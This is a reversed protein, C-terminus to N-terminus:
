LAWLMSMVSFGIVALTYSISNCFGVDSPPPTSAPTETRPGNCTTPNCGQGCLAPFELSVQLCAEDKEKAESQMLFQIRDYCSFSGNSDTAIADLISPRCTEPCGCDFVPATCVDPNCERGCVSPFLNGIARCAQRETLDFQDMQGLIRERCTPADPEESVPRDLAARCQDNCTCDFEFDVDLIHTGGLETWENEYVRVYDVLMDAPLPATIEDPDTIGPYTGGVALNLLIFHPEHFEDCSPCSDDITMAWVQTDDVKTVVREPTWEMRFIHYDDTLDTSTEQYLGFTAYRGDDDWHAASGVRRNLVGSQRGREHGMEMIDLEGCSPWSIRPIAYTNGLMWFAPWLGETLDPIKIRAEIIGYKVTVKNMTNIRASSFGSNLTKASILLNGNEVRINEPNETYEQLEENGWGGAGTDLTWISPDPPGEYDFEESWILEQASAASSWPQSSTAALSAVFCRFVLGDARM